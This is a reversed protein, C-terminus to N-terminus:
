RIHSFVISLRYNWTLRIQILTELVVANVANKKRFWDRDCIYSIIWDDNTKIGSFVYQM